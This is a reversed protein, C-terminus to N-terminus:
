RMLFDINEKITNVSDDVDDLSNKFSTTFTPTYIVPEGGANAIGTNTLTQVADKLDSIVDSLSDCITKLTVTAEEEIKNSFEGSCALKEDTYNLGNNQNLLRSLAAEFATGDYDTGFAFPNDRYYRLVENIFDVYANKVYPLSSYDRYEPQLLIKVILTDFAGIDISDFTNNVVNSFDVYENHYYKNQNALDLEYLTPLEELFLILGPGYEDLFVSQFTRFKTEFMNTEIFNRFNPLITLTKFDREYIEKFDDFNFLKNRGCYDRFVRLLAFADTIDKDNEYLPKLVSCGFKVDRTIIDTKGLYFKGEGVLYNSIGRPCEIKISNGCRTNFDFRQVGDVVFYDNTLEFIPAKGKLDIKFTDNLLFLVSKGNIPDDELKNVGGSTKIQVLKKAGVTFDEIISPNLLFADEQNLKMVLALADKEPVSVTTSPDVSFIVDWYLYPQVRDILNSEDTDKPTYTSPNQYFSDPLSIADEYDPNELSECVCTNNTEDVFRIKVKEIYPKDTKLLKNLGDRINDAM